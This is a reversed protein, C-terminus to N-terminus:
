DIELLMRHNIMRPRVARSVCLGQWCIALFDRVGQREPLLRRKCEAAPYRAIVPAVKPQMKRCHNEQARSSPVM